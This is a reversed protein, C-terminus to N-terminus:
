VFITEPKSIPYSNICVHPKYKIIDFKTTDPIKVNLTEYQNEYYSFVYNKDPTQSFVFILPPNYLNKKMRSITETTEIYINKNRKMLDPNIMPNLSGDFATITKEYIDKPPYYINYIGNKYYSKSEESKCKRYVIPQHPLDYPENSKPTSILSIKYLKKEPNEGRLIELYKSNEHTKVENLYKIENERNKRWEVTKMKKKKESYSISCLGQKKEMKRFGTKEDFSDVILETPLHPMYDHKYTDAFSKGNQLNKLRVYGQMPSVFLIPSVSSSIKPGICYLDSTDSKLFCGNSYQILNKTEGNSNPYLLLFVNSMQHCKYKVVGTMGVSKPLSLTYNKWLTNHDGDKNKLILKSEKLDINKMYKNLSLIDKEDDEKWLKRFHNPNKHYFADDKESDSSSSGSSTTYKLDLNKLDGEYASSSSSSSYSSEFSESEFSEASTCECENPCIQCSESKRPHKYRRSKLEAVYWDERLKRCMKKRDSFKNLHKLYNDSKYESRSMELDLGYNPFDEEYLSIGHLNSFDMALRQANECVSKIHDRYFDSKVFNELTFNDRNSMNKFNYMYLEEREFTSGCTIMLYFKNKYTSYTFNKTEKKVQLRGFNKIIEEEPNPIKKSFIGVRGHNGLECKFIMQSVEKQLPYDYADPNRSCENLFTLDGDDRMINDSVDCSGFSKHLRSFSVGIPRVKTNLSGNEIDKCHHYQNIGFAPSESKKINEIHFKVTEVVLKPDIFLHTNMNVELYDCLDEPRLKNANDREYQKVIKELTQRVLVENTVKCDQEILSINKIKFIMTAEPLKIMDNLFNTHSLKVSSNCTFSSGYPLMDTGDPNGCNTISNPFTLKLYQLNSDNKQNTMMRQRLKQLYNEFVNNSTESKLNDM